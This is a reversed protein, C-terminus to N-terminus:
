SRAKRRRSWGLGVMGLIGSGLLLVSPPVPVATFNFNDILFYYGGGSLIPVFELRDIVGTITSPVYILPGGSLSFTQSGLLSQGLYGNITLQSAGYFPTYDNVTRPAFHAGNYVYPTGSIINLSSGIQGKENILANTGSPFPLQNNYGPQAYSAKTLVGWYGGQVGGTWSFGGYNPSLSNIDPALGGVVTDSASIGDFTLIAALAVGPLCIIVGLALALFLKLSKTRM